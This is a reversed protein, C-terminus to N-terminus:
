NPRRSCQSTTEEDQERNMVDDMAQHIDLLDEVLTRKVKEYHALLNPTERGAHASGLVKSQQILTHLLM